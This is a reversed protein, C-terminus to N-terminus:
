KKDTTAPVADIRAIIQRSHEITRQSQGIQDLLRQREKKAEEILAASSNFPVVKEDSMARGSILRPKHDARPLPSACGFGNSGRVASNRCVQLALWHLTGHFATRASQLLVLVKEHLDVPPRFRPMPAEDICQARAQLQSILERPVVDLHPCNVLRDLPSHQVLASRPAHTVGAPMSYELWQV